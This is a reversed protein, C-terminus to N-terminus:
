LTQVGAFLELLTKDEGEKKERAQLEALSEQIHRECISYFVKLIGRTLVPLYQWTHKQLSSCGNAM